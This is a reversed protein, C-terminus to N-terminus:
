IIPLVPVHESSTFLAGARNGEDDASAFVFSGDDLYIVLPARDWDLYSKSEESLYGVKVITRGVLVDSAKKEWEAVISSM